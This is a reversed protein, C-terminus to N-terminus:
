KAVRFGIVNTRDDLKDGSRSVVPCFGPDDFWSGGRAIKFPNTDDQWAAGNAPAGSYNEHRSDECWEYVNGTMDYLNLENPALQGVPHTKRGSNGIYWGVDALTNSGSYRYGKSLHGGRAAYEWEAETPLRYTQGTQASLKQLFVHVDVWSVGEVPCRDCGPYALTPPNSGMIKRWEAQTVEYQGLYFDPLTVEHSPKSNNLCLTDRDQMCGMTFKGGKVLVMSLFPLIQANAVTEPKQIDDENEAVMKKQSRAFWLGLLIAMLVFATLLGARIKNQHQM